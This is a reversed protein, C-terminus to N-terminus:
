LDLRLNTSHRIGKYPVPVNRQRKFKIGRLYLEQCLADKYVSELLGPGLIRHVEIAAGIIKKASPSSQTQNTRIKKHLKQWSRM